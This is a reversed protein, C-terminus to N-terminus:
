GDRCMYVHVLGKIPVHITRYGCQKLTSFLLLLLCVFLCVFGAAECVFDRKCMTKLASHLTCLTWMVMDVYMM